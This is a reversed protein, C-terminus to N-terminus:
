CTHFSLLQRAKHSCGFQLKELRAHQTCSYHTQTPALLEEYIAAVEGKFDVLQECHSEVLSVDTKDCMDHLTEETVSLRSEM